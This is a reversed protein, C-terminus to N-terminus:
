SAILVAIQGFEAPLNPPKEMEAFGGGPLVADLRLLVLQQKRQMAQRFACFRSDPLKGPAEEDLM